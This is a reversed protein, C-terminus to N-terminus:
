QSAGTSLLSSPEGGENPQGNVSQTVCGATGHAKKATLTRQQHVNLETDAPVRLDDEAFSSELQDARLTCSRSKGKPKGLIRNAQKELGDLDGEVAARGDPADVEGGLEPDGAFTGLTRATGGAPDNIFINLLTPGLILGYPIGSTVARWSSKTSNESGM